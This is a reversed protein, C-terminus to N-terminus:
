RVSTQAGGRMNRLRCTRTEKSASGPMATATAVCAAGPDDVVSCDSMRDSRAVEKRSALNYDAVARELARPDTNKVSWAIYAAPGGCQKMGVALTRCQSDEGCEADGILGRVIEMRAEANVPQQAAAGSFASGIVAAVIMLRAKNSGSPPLGARMRATAIQRRTGRLICADSGTVDFFVPRHRWRGAM